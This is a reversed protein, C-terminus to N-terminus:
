ILNKGSIHLAVLPELYPLTQDQHFIEVISRYHPLVLPPEVIMEQLLGWWLATPWQPCILIARLREGKVKRVVKPLLPVPPFLYTVPDWPALLADQAVALPDRHWSMYRPLQASWRCAFADLTPQLHYHDLIQSFMEKNLMFTWQSIDNRSLFDASTNEKSSIWQPTLITVGHDQAEEWLQCAEQSLSYSKTGGQCRIYAAATRNDIHLRVNDGHEALEIIAERAARTELLNIHHDLALEEKSWRRQTYDGRSSHGGGRIKNADTWIEIDPACERIASSSNGAFGSPSVWWALAAISKSSLIILQGPRRVKCKARLLQRQFPRYRLAALPTVPRVSEMTGLLKEADHVTVVGESMVKTCMGRLREIKDPPCSITMSVSDISFGLHIIKQKPVFDSKKWNLSWGLVMLLLAAVQAHLFVQEKTSGQVLLDDMYISILIEWTARIFAIVPKLVKTLVRPSCKLGFPIVCWELLVDMWKFRLFKRFSECVPIHLYADKLDMGCFWADPKIWDRVQKLGEMRFKYKKVSHNFRKLNLIPRFKGPSRPKTVAFYPSVFQGPVPDVTVVAEKLLLDAAEAVLVDHAPGSAVPNTPVRKQEPPYKFPIKYGQSVVNRIWKSDTVKEWNDICRSLRGGLPLQNLFPISNVIFGLSTIMLLATASFFKNNWAEDFSSPSFYYFDKSSKKKKNRSSADAKDGDKSGDGANDKGSQRGSKGAKGSGDKQKRSRTKHPSGRSRSRSRRSRSRSRSKRGSQRSRTQKRKYNKRSRNPRNITKKLLDDEKSAESLKSRVAKEGGFLGLSPDQETRGGKVAARYAPSFLTAAKDQMLGSLEGDCHAFLDMHFGLFSDLRNVGGVVTDMFSGFKTSVNRMSEKMTCEANLMNAVITNRDDASVGTTGELLSSISPFPLPIIPVQTYYLKDEFKRPGLLQRSPGEAPYLFGLDKGHQRIDTMLRTLEGLSLIVPRESIRLHKGVKSLEEVYQFIHGYQKDKKYRYLMKELLISRTLRENQEQPLFLYEKVLDEFLSAPVMKGRGLFSEALAMDSESLTLTAPKSDLRVAFRDAASPIEAATEGDKEALLRVLQTLVTPKVMRSVLRCPTCTSAALSTGHAECFKVVGSELLLRAEEIDADNAKAGGDSSPTGSRTRHGGRRRSRRHGRSSSRSRGGSSSRSPSRRHSRSRSVSRSRRRESFDSCSRSVSRSRSRRLDEEERDDMSQKILQRDFVLKQFSIQM